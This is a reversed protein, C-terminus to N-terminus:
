DENFVISWVDRSSVNSLTTGDYTAKFGGLLWIKNNFNITTHYMIGTFPANRSYKKWDQTDTSYWIDDVPRTEPRGDVLFKKNGGIVWINNDFVVSSHDTTLSFIYHDRPYIQNFWNIGDESRYIKREVPTRDFPDFSRSSRGILYLKNNFVSVTAGDSDMFSVLNDLEWNIGDTSSFIKTGIFSDGVPDGINSEFVLMKDNFVEAEEVWIFPLETNSILTWNIGDSTNWIENVSEIRSDIYGGLAWIKNDYTLLAYGSRNRIFPNRKRLSWNIGNSSSWTQQEGDNFGITWIQDNFVVTSNKPIHIPLDEQELTIVLTSRCSSFLIIFVIFLLVKFNKM